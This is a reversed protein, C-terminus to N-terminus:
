GCCFKPIMSMALSVVGMQGWSASRMAWISHYGVGLPSICKELRGALRKALVAQGLFLNDPSFTRKEQTGSSGKKEGYGSDKKKALVAQELVLDDPLSTRKEQTGSADEM